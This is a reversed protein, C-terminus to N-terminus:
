RCRSRPAPRSPRSRCMGSAGSFDNDAETASGDGTFYQIEVTQDTMNSLTVTFTFTTTGANGEFVTVDNISATPVVDDNQITGQGQGDAITAGSAANLDVFMTEDSEFKTDGNVQVTVTVTATSPPIFISGSAPVYDNNATTATGDSTSYFLTIPQNSVPTVTITFTLSTTGSAGELTQADSISSRTRRTATTTRSRARARATASRPM